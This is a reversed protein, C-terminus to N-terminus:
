TCYRHTEKILFKRQFTMVIEYIGLIFDNTACAFVDSFPSHTVSFRDCICSIYHVYNRRVGHLSLKQKRQCNEITEKDRRCLCVELRSKFKFFKNVLLFFCM